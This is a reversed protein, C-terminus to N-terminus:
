FPFRRHTVVEDIRMRHQPLDPDVGLVTFTVGAERFYFSGWVRPWVSQVGPVMAIEWALDTDVLDQRGGTIRQVTLEPLAAVTDLMADRLAANVLLTSSLVFVILGLVLGAAANRQWRGAALRAATIGIKGNM